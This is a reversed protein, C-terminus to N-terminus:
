KEGKKIVSLRKPSIKYKSYIEKNSLGAALDNLIDEDDVEHTVDTVEAEILSDDYERCYGMDMIAQAKVVDGEEKAKSYADWQPISMKIVAM